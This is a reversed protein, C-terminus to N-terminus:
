GKRTGKEERKDRLYKIGVKLNCYSMERRPMVHNCVQHLFLCLHSPRHYHYHFQQYELLLLTAASPYKGQFVYLLVIVSLSKMIAKWSAAQILHSKANIYRSQHCGCHGKRWARDSLKIFENIRWPPNQHSQQKGQQQLGIQIYLCGWSHAQSLVQLVWYLDRQPICLVCAPKLM